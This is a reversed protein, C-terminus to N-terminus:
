NKNEIENLFKHADANNPDLILIPQLAKKAEDRNGMSYYAAALAYWVEPAESVAEISKNFAYIASDNKSTERYKMGKAYFYQGAIHLYKRINEHDPEHKRVTDWDQLAKEPKGMNYYCLGRNVYSLMHKPNIAIAKDFYKIAKQFWDNRVQVSAANAKAYIMCAAAANNNVLASNPVKVVDALFLTRDNKWDENREITKFASVAILLIMFGALGTKSIRAINLQGFGKYLLYGAAIAFGVSSHYILREGMPAGINFFLNSVLLLNFLYIAIAFGLVNRKQLLAVMAVILAAYVAMSLYVAPNSFDTYPIQAYSYDAALVNPFVLLKLYELLVLIQTAFKQEITAYLYPNNMINSEAGEAPGTVANFRFLLYLGFPILYPLTTKISFGLPENKFLYFFLPLLAILTVAYEKSLLALFFCLCALLIDRMRKTEKYRYAKVFTLTIFLVSLIEDRSKVNAVVETHVPHIAFILTAIFAAMPFDALVINRLLYLLAILSIIYLLVNVVHRSHMEAAIRVEKENASENDSPIGMMQQEIAFSILSLPRYRGGALQNSGNKKELYSEFADKTLIDPIGAVGHQVYENATIAMRDDFAAEHSFTNVYFIFGILILVFVQVRFHQLSFQSISNAPKAAETSNPLAPAKIIKNGPKAMLTYFYADNSGGALAALNSPYAGM